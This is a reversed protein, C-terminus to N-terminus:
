IRCGSLPTLRSTNDEPLVVEPAWDSFFEDYRQAREAEGELIALAVHLSSLSAWIRAPIVSQDPIALLDACIAQLLETATSM